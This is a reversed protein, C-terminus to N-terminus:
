CIYGVSTYPIQNVDKGEFYAKKLAQPSCARRVRRNAQKYVEQKRRTSRGNIRDYKSGSGKVVKM